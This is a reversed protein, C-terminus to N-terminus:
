VRSKARAGMAVTGVGILALVGIGAVWGATSQGAVVEFNGTPVGDPSSHTADVTQTALALNGDAASGWAYVITNVGEAVDVDAPGIVPDSEGALTVAAELTGAPLDLSAEDPNSLSEVAVEGNALVDVAPAAAVHRVTLRGEGAALESTDNGFATVTPNGDADLHAAATYNGGSELSVDVPGLVPDSADAADAATIAIEYDGGPLELPGALDGPNFDDLTLEGNVYVDVPLDPVAHLVSLQASAAGEEAAYAPVATAAIAMGVLATTALPLSKRM